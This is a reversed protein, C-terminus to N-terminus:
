REGRAEQIRNWLRMEQNPVMRGEICDAEILPELYVELDHLLDTLGSITSPQNHPASKGHSGAHYIPEGKGLAPTKSGLLVESYHRITELLNDLKRWSSPKDHANLPDDEYEDAALEITGLAARLADREDMLKMAGKVNLKLDSM